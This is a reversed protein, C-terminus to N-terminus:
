FPEYYAKVESLFKFRTPQALWAQLGTSQLRDNASRVSVPADTEAYDQRPQLRVDRTELHMPRIGPAAMRDVDVKGSLLVLEGDASVWGTEAAVLWPPDDGQHFTLRPRTLETTDDDYYHKLERTKLTRAPLGDANHTTVSLGRLYYDVLRPGDHPRPLESEADTGVLWWSFGAFVIILATLLIPHRM